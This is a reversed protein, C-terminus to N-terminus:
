RDQITQNLRTLRSLLQDAKSLLQVRRKDHDFRILCFELKLCVAGLFAHLQFKRVEDGWMFCDNQRAKSKHFIRILQDLAYSRVIECAAIIEDWSLPIGETLLGM